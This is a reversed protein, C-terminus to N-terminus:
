GGAFLCERETHLQYMDISCYFFKGSFINVGVIAFIGFASFKTIASFESICAFPTIALLVLLANYGKSGTTLPTQEIFGLIADKLSPFISCHEFHSLILESQLM